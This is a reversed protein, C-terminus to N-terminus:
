GGFPPFFLHRGQDGGPSPFPFYFPNGASGLEGDPTLDPARVWLNFRENAPIENGFDLAQDGRQPYWVLGSGNSVPHWIEEALSLRARAARADEHLYREAGVGTWSDNFANDATGSMLSTNSLIRSFYEPNTSIADLINPFTYSIRVENMETLTALAAPKLIGRATPIFNDQGPLAGVGDGTDLAIKIYGNTDVFTSFEVGSLRFFYNDGSTVDRAQSLSTFPDAQTGVQASTPVILLWVILLSFLLKM